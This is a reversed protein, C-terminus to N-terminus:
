HTYRLIHRSLNLLDKPIRLRDAAYSISDVYLGYVIATCAMISIYNHRDSRGVWRVQEAPGPKNHSSILDCSAPLFSAYTVISACHTFLAQTATPQPLPTPTALPLLRRCKGSWNSRCCLRLNTDLLCMIETWKSSSPWIANACHVFWSSSCCM